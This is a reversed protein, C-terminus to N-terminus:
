PITGNESHGSSSRPAPEEPLWATGLWRLDIIAQNRAEQETTFIAERKTLVLTFPRGTRRTTHSVPLEATDIRAHVHARRQQALPWEMRRQRPDELFRALDQCLECSCGAPLSVSWDDPDRPPRDLQARLRTAVHAALAAFPDVAAVTTPDPVARLVPILCVLIADDRQCLDRVMTDPLSDSTAAAATLLAGLPPALRELSASRRGPSRAALAEDVQTRLWAWAQGTLIRAATAGPEGRGLLSDALGPLGALWTLLDPATGWAARGLWTRSLDTSWDEGFREVLRALAAAHGPSLTEVRFPALLMRALEADQLAWAARLATDLLHASAHAQVTSSWAPTLTAAAVRAGELDQGGARESLEELARVPELEARNAFDLSRPWVVLAARRYWRDVTNGYNGMYGEYESAYPSLDATRTTACVESDNVHVAVSETRGAPGTWRTIQISSDLLQDADYDAADDEDDYGPEFEYAEWVENIESLALRAECDARDAAARLLAARQADVGKLRAWSVGRETYEHDLLYVLRAPPASESHGFQESPSTFHADLHDALRCVAAEAAPIGAGTEGEVLLNYTLTVRHGSRVPRVEHRCDAYFAVLSPATSSGRYTRAGGGDEVVLAGGTRATPLSVVLTGIMADDKESDQHAVFFQGQEYVLMAHFEVRLRCSPALGLRRRVTDLHHQLAPGWEVHVSERPVEWTDRVQTDTLTHRGRGYSAPQGAASLAAAQDPTVPLKIAGIGDVTVVLDDNSGRVQTSQRSTPTERGLLAAALDRPATM